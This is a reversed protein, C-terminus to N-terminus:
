VPTTNGRPTPSFLITSKRQIVKGKKKLRQVTATILYLSITLIVITINLQETIMERLADRIDKGDIENGMADWGAVKERAFLEIRPIDGMLEVIKDRICDPKKSHRELPSIVLQRVAKGMRKPTGKTAILCLEANARTWYGLGMFFGPSKKNAKLWVFGCTKYTFGWAKIVELCDFLNPFTAWMFLVCDKDAIEAVPLSRLEDTAMVCYHNAEASRGSGKKSWVKYEWPPDVYLLQYRKILTRRRGPMFIGGSM